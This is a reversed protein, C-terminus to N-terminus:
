KVVMVAEAENSLSKGGPGGGKEGESGGPVDIFSYNELWEPFELEIEEKKNNNHQQTDCNHSQNDKNKCKNKNVITISPPTATSSPLTTDNSISKIKSKSKSQFLNARKIVTVDDRLSNEYFLRNPLLSIAPHMRYQTDLLNCPYACREILRQM